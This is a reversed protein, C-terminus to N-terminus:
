LIVLRSMFEKRRSKSLPLHSGDELILIGGAGNRVMRKIHGINVLYKNHARFFLNPNLQQQLILLTKSLTTELGHTFIVRTYNGVGECYLIKEVNTVTIDASTPLAIFECASKKIRFFDNVGTLLQQFKHAKTQNIQKIKKVSEILEKPNIPKLIFDVANIKLAALAFQFHSSIFVTPIKLLHLEKSLEIGSMGALHIELFAVNPALKVASLLANKPSAFKGVIKIEPCHLRISRETASRGEDDSEVIIATLQTM